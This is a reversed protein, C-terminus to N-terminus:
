PLGVDRLANCINKIIRLIENANTTYHPFTHRLFYILEPDNTFNKNLSIPYFDDWKEKTKDKFFHALIGAIHERNPSSLREYFDPWTHYLLIMAFIIQEQEGANNPSDSFKIASKILRRPTLTKPIQPLQAANEIITSGNTAYHILEMIRDGDEAPSLSLHYQESVMKDLYSNGDMTTGNYKRNIYSAVVSSDIAFVWTCNQVGVFNKISELLSVVHDPTCRDLNDICLVLKDLNQEKLALTVLKRFAGSVEEIDDVLKEWELMVSDPGSEKYYSQFDKVGSGIVKKGLSDITALSTVKLVRQTDEWWTTLDKISNGAKDRLLKIVPIILNNTGDYKWADIIFIGVRSNNQNTLKILNLLSSKGTGWGGYIGLAPPCQTDHLRELIRNALIKRELLDEALTEIPDHINQRSMFM